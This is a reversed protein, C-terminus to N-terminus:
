CRNVTIRRSLPRASRRFLRHVRSILPAERPRRLAPRPQLGKPLGGCVLAPARLPCVCLAASDCNTADAKCTTLTHMSTHVYVCVCVCECVCVCVCVCVIGGGWVCVCLWGGVSFVPMVRKCVLRKLLYMLGHLHSPLLSSVRHVTNNDKVWVSSGNNM